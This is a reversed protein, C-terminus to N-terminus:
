LYIGIGIGLHFFNSSADFDANGLASPVGLQYGADITLFGSGSIAYNAAVGFGLTAGSSTSRPLILLSYGVTGYAAMALGDSALNGIRIRGRLDFQTASSMAHEGQGVILGPAFGIAVFPRAFYDLSASVGYTTATDVNMSGGGPSLSGVPVLDLQIAIAGKPSALSPGALKAVAIRPATCDYFQATERQSSGDQFGSFHLHSAGRDVAAKRLEIRLRARGQRGEVASTVSAQGLESCDVVEAPDVVFLVNGSDKAAAAASVLAPGPGSVRPASPVAPVPAGTSLVPGEHTPSATSAALAPATASAAGATPPAPVNSPDSPSHATADGALAPTPDPSVQARASAALGGLLAGVLLPFRLRELLM